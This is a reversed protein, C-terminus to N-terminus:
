RGERSGALWLDRMLQVQGTHERLHGLGFLLAEAGTPAHGDPFSWPLQAALSEDSVQELLLGYPAPAGEIATLLDERTRGRARFAEARVGKMYAERDDDLGAACSFMFAVATLSHEVLVSVSNTGPMPTWDLGNDPMAGVAERLDALAMNTSSLAASAFPHM